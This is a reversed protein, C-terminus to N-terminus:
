TAPPAEGEDAEMSQSCAPCEEADDTPAFWESCMRCWILGSTDSDGNM